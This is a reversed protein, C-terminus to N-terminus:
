LRLRDLVAREYSDDEGPYRLRDEFRGTESGTNHERGSKGSQREDLIEAGSQESAEDARVECDCDDLAFREAEITGCVHRSGGIMEIGLRQEIFNKGGDSIKLVGPAAAEAVDAKRAKPFPEFFKAFKESALETTRNSRELDSYGGGFQGAFHM